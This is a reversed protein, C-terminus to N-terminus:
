PLIEAGDWGFLRASQAPTLADIVALLKPASAEPSLLTSVDGQFPASLPTDVTGPHLAVCVALRNSRAIEIAFTRLPMNLAAKSARYADWGGLRNDSISGVRASLTAFVAKETKSLCPLMHKVITAPGITNMAFVRALAEPRLSRCTREPKLAAEHLMGTAIVVFHMAGERSIAAAAQAIPSADKLDFAFPILEPSTLHRDPRRAEAYVRACISSRV